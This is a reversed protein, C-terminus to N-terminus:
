KYQTVAKQNLTLQIRTNLTYQTLRHATQGYPKNNQWIQDHVMSNKATFSRYKKMQQNRISIEYCAEFERM